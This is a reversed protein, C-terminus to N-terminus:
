WKKDRYIIRLILYGILLGLLNGILWEITM